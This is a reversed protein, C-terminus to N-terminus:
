VTKCSREGKGFVCVCEVNWFKKKWLVGASSDKTVQVVSKKKNTTEYLQANLKSYLTRPTNVLFHVTDTKLM